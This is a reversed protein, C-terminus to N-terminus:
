SPTTWLRVTPTAYIPHPPGVDRDPRADGFDAVRVRLVRRDAITLGTLAPEIKGVLDRVGEGTQGTVTIQYVFEVDADPDAVSGDRQGGGIPYMVYYDPGTANLVGDLAGDPAETFGVPRGTADALATKVALDHPLPEVITPM